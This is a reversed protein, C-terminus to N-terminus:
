ARAPPRDERRLPRSLDNLPRRQVTASTATRAAATGTDSDADDPAAAATRGDWEGVGTTTDSPVETRTVDIATPWASPHAM